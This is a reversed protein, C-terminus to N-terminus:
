TKHIQFCLSGFNKSVEGLQRREEFWKKRENKEESPDVNSRRGLLQMEAGSFKACTLREKHTPAHNLTLCVWLCVWLCVGSVLWLM